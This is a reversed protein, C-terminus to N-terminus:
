YPVLFNYIINTCCVNVSCPLVNTMFDMVNSEPLSMHLVHHAAYIHKLLKGMNCSCPYIQLVIKETLISVCQIPMKLIFYGIIMNHCSKMECTNAYILYCYNAGILMNICIHM